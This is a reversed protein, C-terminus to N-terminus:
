RPPIIYTPSPDDAIFEIMQRNDMDIVIRPRMDYWLKVIGVVLLTLGLAIFIYGLTNHGFIFWLSSCALWFIGLGIVQVGKIAM